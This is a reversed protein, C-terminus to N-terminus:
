VPLIHHADLSHSKIGCSACTYNDREHVAKKWLDYDKSDYLQSHTRQGFPTYKWHKEGRPRNKHRSAEHFRKWLRPEEKHRMSLTIKPLNFNNVWRLVTSDVTGCLEAIDRLYMRKVVYKDYLWDKNRYLRNGYVSWLYDSIKKKREKEVISDPDPKYSM